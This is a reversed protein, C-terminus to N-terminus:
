AAPSIAEGTLMDDIRAVLRREGPELSEVDLALRFMPELNLRPVSQLREEAAREAAFPSADKDLVIPLSFIAPKSEKPRLEGIWM